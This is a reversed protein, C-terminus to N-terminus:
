RHRGYRLELVGGKKAVSSILDLQYGNPVDDFMRRGADAVDPFMTVRFEDMLDLWM